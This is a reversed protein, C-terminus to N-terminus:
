PNRILIKLFLCSFASGNVLSSLQFRYLIIDLFGVQQAGRISTCVPGEVTELPANCPLQLKCSYKSTAGQGEHRNM